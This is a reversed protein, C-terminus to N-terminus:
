IGTAEQRCLECMELHIRGAATATTRNIQKLKWTGTSKAAAMIGRYKDGHEACDDCTVIDRGTM